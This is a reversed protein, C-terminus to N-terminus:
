LTLQFFQILLVGPLLATKSGSCDQMREWLKSMITEAKPGMDLNKPGMDLNKWDEEEGGAGGLFSLRASRRRPKIYNSDIQCAGYKGQQAM